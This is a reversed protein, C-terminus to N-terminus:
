AEERLFAGQGGVRMGFERGRYFFVACSVVGGPLKCWLRKWRAAALSYKRPENKKM